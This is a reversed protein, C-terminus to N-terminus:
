IINEAIESVIKSRPSFVHIGLRRPAHRTVFNRPTDHIEAERTWGSSLIGFIRRALTAQGSGCAAVPYFGGHLRQAEADRH